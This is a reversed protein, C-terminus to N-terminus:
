FMCRIDTSASKVVSLNLAHAGVKLFDTPALDGRETGKDKMM